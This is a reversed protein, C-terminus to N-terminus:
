EEGRWDICAAQERGTGERDREVGEGQNESEPAVRLRRLARRAILRISTSAAAAALVPLIKEHVDSQQSRTLGAGM